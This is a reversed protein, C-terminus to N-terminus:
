GVPVFATFGPTHPVGARGMAGRNVRQPIM